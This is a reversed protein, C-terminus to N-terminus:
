ESILFDTNFIHANSESNFTPSSLAQNMYKTLTEPFNLDWSVFSTRFPFVPKM